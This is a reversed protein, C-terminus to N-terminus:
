DAQRAERRMLLALLTGGAAAAAGFLALGLGVWVAWGLEIGVETRTEVGPRGDANMVVVSWSGKEVNWDLTQPGSGNTSAAWLKQEAPPTVGNTAGGVERYAPDDIETVVSHEIGRLYREAENTPAVGIFLREGTTSRADVRLDGLLEQPVVDAVHTLDIDESVIASGDSELSEMSTTYFGDADRGTFHVVMVAVGALAILAGITAVATGGVAGIVRGPKWGGRRSAAPAGPQPMTTTTTSM